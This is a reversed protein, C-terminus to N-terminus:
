TGGAAEKERREREDDVAERLAIAFRALRDVTRQLDDAFWVWVKILPKMAEVLKQIPDPEM